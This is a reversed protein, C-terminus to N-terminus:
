IPLIHNYLRDIRTLIELLTLNRLCVKLLRGLFSIYDAWEQLNTADFLSLARDLSSEYRRYIKDKVPPDDPQNWKRAVPAPSDERGSSTPSTSQRGSSHELAM